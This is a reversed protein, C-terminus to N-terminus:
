MKSSINYVRHHRGLSLWTPRNLKCFSTSFYYIVPDLCSNISVLAITVRRARYIASAYSCHKIVGCRMLLHLLCVIHYPLFCLVTIGLIAYIVRLARRSTGTKIRAIRRAVLPYCVMIIVFPILSGFLLSCASYAALRKEWENESFNEFCSRRDSTPNSELPGVIIFIAVAVVAVTWVSMSVLQTCPSRQLRLYAHPHVTAVYRDIAICSLFAISVYINVFFLTGTIQCAQDGFIWDNHNLHYHIRFPLTCLFATDALALNIIYVSTSTRPTIKCMFMYLAFVNGLLGFVVVFSYVVPFLVFQFDATQACSSESSNM